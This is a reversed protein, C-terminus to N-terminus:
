ISAPPAPHKPCRRLTCLVKEAEADVTAHFDGPALQIPNLGISSCTHEFAKCEAVIRQALQPLSDDDYRRSTWCGGSERHLRLADLREAVTAPSSVPILRIRGFARFLFRKHHPLLRRAGAMDICAGTPFTDVLRRVLARLCLRQMAPSKISTAMAHSIGDVSIHRHGLRDSLRACLTSKGIRSPGFVLLTGSAASAPGPEAAFQRRISEDCRMVWILARLAEIQLLTSKVARAGETRLAALTNGQDPREPGAM